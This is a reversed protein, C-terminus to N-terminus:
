GQHLGTVKERDEGRGGNGQLQMNLITNTIDDGEKRFVHDYLRRRKMILFTLMPEENVERWIAEYKIHDM